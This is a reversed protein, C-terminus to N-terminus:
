RPARAPPVSQTSNHSPPDDTGTASASVSPFAHEFRNRFARARDRYLAYIVKDWYRNDFYQHDRLRGEEVLLGESAASAFQPLNFAPAEVYLKRLPFHAFVYRVFLMAAELVGAGARPDSVIALWATGDQLHGDYAIVQGIVTQPSRTLVVVFQALVNTHLAREFVEFPPITGHYRWRFNVARSITLEYLARHYEPTLARLTYRPGALAPAEVASLDRDSLPSDSPPATSQAVAPHTTTM